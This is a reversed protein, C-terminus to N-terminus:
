SRYPYPEVHSNRDNIQKPLSSNDFNYGLLSIDKAYVNAVIMKTEEDYYDKYDNHNSKNKQELIASSDVMERIVEFDNHLNELFAIYDVELKEHLATFYSHQPRFHHYKLINEASLWGKVFSKFDKYDSINEEAWQKDDDNMGGKALFHYASVVRDWPNRVVTFKFYHKIERPSFILSYDDFTTHGGALNGYLLNTISVGACKPIHIFISKTDDFPKLSYSNETVKKRKNQQTLYYDRRFLSLEVRRFNLYFSLPLRHFLKTIKHLM